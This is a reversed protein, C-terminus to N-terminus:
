ILEIVNTLFYYIKGKIGPHNVNLSGHCYFLYILKCNSTHIVMDYRRCSIVPVNYALLIRLPELTQS